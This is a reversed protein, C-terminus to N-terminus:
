IKNKIMSIKLPKITNKKKKLCFVAYAIAVHSSNLRTSKRDGQIEEARGSTAPDLARAQIQQQVVAPVRQRPVHHRPDPVPQRARGVSVEGSMSKRQLPNCVLTRGCDGLSPSVM